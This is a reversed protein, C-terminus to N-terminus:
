GEKRWVTGQYSGQSEGLNAARSPSATTAELYSGLAPTSTHGAEISSAGTRQYAEEEDEEEEEEEEQKEEELHLVQLM